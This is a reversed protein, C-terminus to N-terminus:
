RAQIAPVSFSLGNEKRLLGGKRLVELYIRKSIRLGAILCLSIIGDVFFIRKPFGTISMSPLFSNSLSLFVLLLESFILALVINLLDNISTYRWSMSYVRFIALAAIKIVIFFLAVEVMLDFYDINVNLEFHFLFSIFLSFVFLIIDAICFFIFRNFPSPKM